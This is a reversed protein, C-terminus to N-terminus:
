TPSGVWTHPPNDCAGLGRAGFGAVAQPRILGKCGAAARGMNLANHEVNSLLHDLTENTM